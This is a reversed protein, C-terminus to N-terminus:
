FLNLHQRQSHIHHTICLVLVVRCTGLSQGMALVKQSCNTDEKRLLLKKRDLGRPIAVYMSISAAQGGHRAGEKMPSGKEM